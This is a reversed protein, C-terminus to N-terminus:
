LFVAFPGLVHLRTAPFAIGQRTENRNRCAAEMQAQSAEPRRRGYRFDAGLIVAPRYHADTQAGSAYGNVKAAM